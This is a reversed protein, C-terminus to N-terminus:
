VNEIEKNCFPPLGISDSIILSCEKLIDHEMTYYYKDTEKSKHGLIDTIVQHQVKQKLLKYVMTKRLVHSGEPKGQPLNIKILEKRILMYIGSLQKFPAQSRLFVNNISNNQPREKLIYEMIANGVEASLPLILPIKTKIQVIKIKDNKWDIDTLKLNCIDSARLGLNMALLIIAKNRITMSSFNSRLALEEQQTLFSSTHIKHRSPNLLLYTLNNKVFGSEYLYEFIIRLIPIITSLSHTSCKQKFFELTKTIAESNIEYLETALVIRTAMLCNRFVYEHLRITKIALNKSRIQNIYSNYVPLLALPINWKPLNKYVRWELSGTKAVENIMLATRRYLKYKWNNPNQYDTKLKNLYTQLLQFNYNSENNKEFYKIIDIVGLGYQYITSDSSGWKKANELMLSCVFLLSEKKDTLPFSIGKFYSEIEDKTAFKFISANYMKGKPDIAQSDAIKDVVAILSHYSAYIDISSKDIAQQMFISYLEQCPFNIQNENATTILRRIYTKRRAFTTPALTKELILEVEKMTDKLTLM